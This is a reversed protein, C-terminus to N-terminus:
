TENVKDHKSVWLLLALGPIAMLATLVFFISWNGGLKDVMFGSGAALTTRSFNGLSAFLAYQTATYKVNCLKSLYTVFAVTSMGGTFNDLVVCLVLVSEVKGVVALYAYLLNTLAMALGSLFLGKTSGLKISIAGGILSGAALSIMGVSKVYAFVESWTFGVENYFRISMSGLFAEGLKFSFIFILIAGALQAGNRSFFEVFPNVAADIFWAKIDVPKSGDSTETEEDEEPGKPEKALLITVVGILMGFSMFWYIQNWSLDFQTLFLAVGALPMNGLLWGVVSTSAAAGQISKEVSEIRYADIAVDQTASVFAIILCLLAITPLDTSADVGALLMILAFLLVQSLLIWSRRRGLVRSLWPLPMKDVLPAWLFNFAYPLSVLGFLAVDTRSLGEDTLWAILSSVIMGKPFGSSIGLLLIVLIRRDFFVRIANM